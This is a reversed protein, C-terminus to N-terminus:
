DEAPEPIGAVIAWYTKELGGRPSLALSARRRRPRNASRWCAPPTATLGICWARGRPGEGWAGLLRDIHRFTKTGGQVALGAPKNLILVEDDEYLVLSRAFTPTM